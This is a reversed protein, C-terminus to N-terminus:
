LRTGIGFVGAHDIRILGAFDSDIKENGAIRLVTTKQIAYSEAMVWPAADYLADGDIEADALRPLVSIVLAALQLGDGLTGAPM